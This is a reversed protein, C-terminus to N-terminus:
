FQTVPRVYYVSSKTNQMLCGTLFNLYWAKAATSESSSWYGFPKFEEFYPHTKSNLVGKQQLTWLLSLEGASPLYWLGTHTKYDNCVNAATIQYKKNIIAKTNKRGNFDQLVASKEWSVIAGTTANVDINKAQKSEDDLFFKGAEGKYYPLSAMDKHDLILSDSFVGAVNGAEPSWKSAGRHADKIAVVKGHPSSTLTADIKGENDTLAFIIGTCVKNPNRQTSWTADSYYYDGVKAPALEQCTLTGLDKFSGSIMEIQEETSVEYNKGEQTTLTFHLRSTNPFFAMYIKSPCGQQNVIEYNQGKLDLLEGNRLHVDAKTYFAGEIPVVKIQTIHDIPQGNVDNFMFTAIATKAEMKVEATARKEDIKLSDARGWCFDFKNLNELTGNQANLDLKQRLTDSTTSTVWEIPYFVSLKNYETVQGDIKGTFISDDAHNFVEHKFGDKSTMIVKVQDNDEWEGNLHAFQITNTRVPLTMSFTADKPVLTSPDIDDKKDDDSCSAALLLTSCVFLTKFFKMKPKQSKNNNLHM